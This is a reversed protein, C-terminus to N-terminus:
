VQVRKVQLDQWSGVGAQSALAIQRVDEPRIELFSCAVADVAVMDPSLVLAGPKVVKGPGKPGNTVLAHTCDLITLTPRLAGALDAINQHLNDDQQEQSKAEHFDQPRWITGMQNKLGLTVVSASHVKCCALNIYCDCDLIDQAVQTQKINVGPVAIQGYLKENDLSVLRVKLDQCVQQAGSVDFAAVPSDCPHEVLLVEGAGAAQCAKILAALVAPQVNAAQDPSRAWALNPKIVVADGRHVFAALGGFPDLGAQLMLAPDSGRVTVADLGSVPHVVHRNQGVKGVIGGAAPAPAPATPAQGTAATPEAARRGCGLATLASAGAAGAVLRLFDRRRM